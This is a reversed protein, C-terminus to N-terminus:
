KNLKVVVLYFSAHILCIESKIIIVTLKKVCVFILM